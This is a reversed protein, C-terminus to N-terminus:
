KLLRLHDSCENTALNCTALNAVPCTDTRCNMVSRPRQEDALFTLEQDPCTAIYVYMIRWTGKTACTSHYLDGIPLTNYLVVEGRVQLQQM